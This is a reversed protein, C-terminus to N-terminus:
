IIRVPNKGPGFPHITDSTLSFYAGVGAGVIAVQQPTAQALKTLYMAGGVVGYFNAVQNCGSYLMSVAAATGYVALITNDNM